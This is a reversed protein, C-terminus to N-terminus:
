FYIKLYSFNPKPIWVAVSWMKMIENQQYRKVGAADAQFLTSMIEALSFDCLFDSTKM